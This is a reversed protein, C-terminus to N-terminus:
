NPTSHQHPNMLLMVAPEMALSRAIAVRQQQGGSLRSPYVDKKELLGVRALLEEGKKVAAEKPTKRVVLLAEIVNQLATKHPYLNFQQFVMGTHLRIERIKKNRERKNQKTDVAIGAVEYAAQDNGRFQQNLAM